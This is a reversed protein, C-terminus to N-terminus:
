GEFEFLNLGIDDSLRRGVNGDMSCIFIESTASVVTANLHGGYVNYEMDSVSIHAHIYVEGDKRTINGTLATIEYPGRLEKSHYEKTDTEFIGIKVYNVAGIGTIYALTINEVECVKKISELVEEGKDVRLVYNKDFKQYKM